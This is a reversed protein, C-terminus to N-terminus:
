SLGAAQVLRNFAAVCHLFAGTARGGFPTAEQPQQGKQRRAALPTYRGAFWPSADYDLRLTWIPRRGKIMVLAAGTERAFQQAVEDPRLLPALTIQENSNSSRAAGGSIAVDDTAVLSAAELAAARYRQAGLAGVLPAVRDAESKQGYGVQESENTSRVTQRTEVQGLAQSVYGCTEADSAGFVQVAGANALFTQWSQPYLAKLQQLDQLILWLKVGFGAAFGAANELSPMAGLSFVEDLVFLIPAGNAPPELTRQLRELILNLVVRLWRSHAGMRAPPLCLYLSVGAPASKLTDPDFRRETGELTNRFREGLTDLFATNRRATSLISGREEEGCQALTEAAGIIVHDLNENGTKIQRMNDLLFWQASPCNQEIDPDQKRAVEWGQKDGQTLFRRLTFLSPNKHRARLYLLLGKIYNRASEDWHAAQAGTSIVLAEALYAADDVVTEAKLDLLGLPNLSGRLGEPVDAVGFPDLVYVDQGLGECWENGPGRRMATLSANEGKPDIVVVSGPYICLNPVIMSRGKGSRAGAITVLHRDDNFGLPLVEALQGALWVKELAAVLNARQLPTLTSQELADLFAISKERLAQLQPWMDREPIAGLLIAGSPQYVLREIAEPLEWASSTLPANLPSGIGRPLSFM